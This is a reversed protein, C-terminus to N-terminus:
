FRRCNSANGLRDCIMLKRECIFAVVIRSDDMARALVQWAASIVERGPGSSWPPIIMGITVMFAEAPVPLSGVAPVTTM